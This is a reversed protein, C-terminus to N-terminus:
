QLVWLNMLPEREELTAEALHNASALEECLGLMERKIEQLSPFVTFGAHCYIFNLCNNCTYLQTYFRSLQPRIYCVTAYYSKSFLERRARTANQHHLFRLPDCVASVLRYQIGNSCRLQLTRWLSDM